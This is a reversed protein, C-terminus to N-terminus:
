VSRGMINRPLSEADFRLCPLSNRDDGSGEPFNLGRSKFDRIRSRTPELGVVRVYRAALSEQSKQARRHPDSKQKRTATGAIGPRPAEAIRKEFSAANKSVIIIIRM